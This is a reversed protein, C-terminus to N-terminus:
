KEDEELHKATLKHRQLLEELTYDTGVQLLTCPPLTGGMGLSM